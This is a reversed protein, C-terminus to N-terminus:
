RALSQSLLLSIRDPDLLAALKPKRLQLVFEIMRLFREEGLGFLRGDVARRHTEVTDFVRDAGLVEKLSARSLPRHEDDVLRFDM